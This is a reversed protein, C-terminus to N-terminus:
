TPKWKRVVEFGVRLKTKGVAVVLVALVALVALVVSWAM